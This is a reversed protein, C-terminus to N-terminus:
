FIDLESPCLYESRNHFAQALVTGALTCQAFLPISFKSLNYAPQSEAHASLDPYKNPDINHLARLFEARVVAVTSDVLESAATISYCAGLLLFASVAM